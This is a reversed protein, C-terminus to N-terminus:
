KSFQIMKQASIVVPGILGSSVLPDTAKYFPQTTFTTRQGAPQPQNNVYWDPMEKAPVNADVSFGSTDPFREEGILRNTWLNTVEIQLENSGVVLADTIDLKYPPMWVVGLDKGNLIVKAAICVKGLDLEFKREARKLNKSVVFSKTYVATGSYYKIGDRAHDKWDTLSAFTEEGEYGSEKNFSVKWSGNLLIPQPIDKVEVVWNQIGSVVSSYNGNKSVVMCPKKEKTLFFDPAPPNGTTSTVVPLQNTPERFVIFVSGESTLSISASTIGNINSFKALRKTEGTMPNWLEPIKEQINFSCDFTQAVSDPNYFFYIDEKATKRHVYTIDTRSGIKLDIPITNEAYIKAWDFDTCTTKKAWIRATLLNFENIQEKSVLYGVMEVPKPGIILVNQEALENLRKLTNLSLRESNRLVLAKYSTGEPLVLKGNQVKIRNILVDTNVNDFNITTPIAPKFDKRGFVSNPSGEGVYVLLDSVPVGQRLLFSGRAIYKFWAAGANKWWTQTRDIHSGWRNMTMGPTVHTNAQHAYRHFMFENIGYTWAIDGTIKSLAPHGKWNLAQEATFSEASIVNKGYIRAGSVPSSVQGANIERRMWFEGMPLDVMQGADLNNFPGFGYPEVYSKIGDKHCLETFYNFYNKVMLQSVLKRFDWLVADSAKASEVFRGAFLPLFQILDYKYEMKFIDDLGQSWNQGGVEYSDIEVYQLANPAVPKAARIVRGVFADYHIKFAERSLKDVELGQGDRSSPTNVAGTTTYGIRMITWNGDPLTAKLKGEKSTEGSLNVIKKRDIVMSSPPNGIPELKQNEIRALCNRGLPDNIVLTASLNVESINVNGGAVIRYYKAKVDQYNKTLAWQSKSIRKTEPNALERFNVGDDSALLKIGPDRTETLVHLSRLPYPEPYQYQIWEKKQDTVKLATAKETNQDSILALQFDPDSASILPKIKQDIIESELAPYALIAIDQYFNMRTPPRPLQVEINGGGKVVIESYVLGKMSNEPTIWPGGSSTWGDCNHVGFAIGLREAEMAAHKIIAIHEDSNYKIKGYPIGQAINFLLVGGIGVKSIAEFDKTIGEKSMNGSMAHMWTKPKFSSPPNKFNVELSNNNEKLSCSVMLALALCLLISNKM